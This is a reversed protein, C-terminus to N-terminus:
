YYESGTFDYNDQHGAVQLKFKNVFPKGGPQSGAIKQATLPPSYILVGM